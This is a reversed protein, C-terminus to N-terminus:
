VADSRDIDGTVGVTFDGKVIWDRYQLEKEHRLTAYNVGPKASVSVPYELKLAKLHDMVVQAVCMLMPHPNFIGTARTCGCSDHEDGLANHGDVLFEFEVGFTLSESTHNQQPGAM